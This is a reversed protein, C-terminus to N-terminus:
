KKVTISTRPSDKSASALRKGNRRMEVDVKLYLNHKGEKLLSGKVAMSTNLDFLLRQAEEMTKPEIERGDERTVKVWLRLDEQRPWVRARYTITKKAIDKDFWFRVDSRLSVRYIVQYEITAMSLAFSPWDSGGFNTRRDGNVSVSVQLNTTQKTSLSTPGASLRVQNIYLAQVAQVTSSNLALTSVLLVALLLPRRSM